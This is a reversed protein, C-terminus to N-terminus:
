NGVKVRSEIPRGPIGVAVSRAPVDTLVVTNAGIVSVAGIRVGGIVKAGAFLKVRDEIVPYQDDM